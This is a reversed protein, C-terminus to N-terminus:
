RIASLATAAAADIGHCRPFLIVCLHQKCRGRMVINQEEAAKALYIQELAILNRLGAARCLSGIQDVQQRQFISLGNGRHETHRFFLVIFLMIQEKRCLAANDLANAESIHCVDTFGTQTSQREIFAIAQNIDTQGIVRLIHQQNRCLAAANAEMLAFNACHTTRSDADLANLQLLIVAHDAAHTCTRLAFHERNCFVTEALACRNLIIGNMVAAALADQCMRQAIRGTM